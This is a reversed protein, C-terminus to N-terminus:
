KAPLAGSRIKIALEGTRLTQNGTLAYLMKGTKDFIRIHPLAGIDYHQAVPSEDDKINIKRIAIGKEGTLKTVTKKEIVKCAGCWDAYFDVITVKGPVLVKELAVMAGPENVIKIDQDATLNDIVPPKDTKAPGKPGTSGGGKPGVDSGCGFLAMSVTLISAAILRNM